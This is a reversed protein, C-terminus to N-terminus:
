HVPDAGVGGFVIPITTTATKAALAATTSVAVMVNVQRRVLDTALEPLRELRGEAWRYEITVNRSAFFGTERLGREFAAVQKVSTGPLGPRLIVIVPILAQQARAALPWTAVAGGLLTIFERRRM